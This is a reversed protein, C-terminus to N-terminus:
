CCLMERPPSLNGSVHIHYFLPLKNQSNVVQSIMEVCRLLTSKIGGGPVWPGAADM